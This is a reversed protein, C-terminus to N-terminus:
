MCAIRLCTAATTVTAASAMSAAKAAATDTAQAPATNPAKADSVGAAAETCSVYVVVEPWGMHVATHSAFEM